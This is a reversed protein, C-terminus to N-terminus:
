RLTIPQGMYFEVVKVRFLYDYKNRILDARANDLRVRSTTFEVITSAGEEFRVTAYEMAKEAASVSLEAARYSNLAALADAYASEVSQTLTLKAQELNLEATEMNIQARQVNGHTSFGNFIPISLSFFLSSNVNDRIQDNFAKTEFGDSYTFDQTVVLDGSGEVFGIPITGAPVLEGQPVSTAGSYGSGYSYSASLNPSMGGKAIQIGTQASAVSAEASKIEPFSNVAMNTATESSGPLTLTGLDSLDPAVISFSGAEESPVLILQRLSLYALNRNNEATIVSAQDSSYQAQIDLLDGEPASGVEVLKQIRDLQQETSQLNSQAIKLFEEQFLVNLYTNAVNLAIDNQMRLLNQKQAEFDQTSQKYRNLNQFGNFITLRTSLGLSNSRIRESAFQNTFPDITQGWNYGHSASANLSPLMTGFNQLKNVANLELQLESQKISINNAFAHDICRKLSWPEQAQLSVALFLGLSLTLIKSM